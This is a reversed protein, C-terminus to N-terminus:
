QILQSHKVRRKRLCALLCAEGSRRRGAEVPGRGDGRRDRRIAPRASSNMGSVSGSIRGGPGDSEWDIIENSGPDM